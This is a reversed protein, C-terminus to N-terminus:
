FDQSRIPNFSRLKEVVPLEVSKAPFRREALRLAEYRAEVQSASEVYFAIVVDDVVTKVYFYSKSM